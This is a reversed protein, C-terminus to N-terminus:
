VPASTGFLARSAATGQQNCTKYIGAQLAADLHGKFGEMFVEWEEMNMSGFGEFELLPPSKSPAVKPPYPVRDLRRSGCFRGGSILGSAARDKRRSTRNFVHSPPRLSRAMFDDSSDSEFSDEADTTPAKNPHPSPTASISAVSFAALSWSDSEGSLSKDKSMKLPVPSALAEVDLDFMLETPSGPHALAYESGPSDHFAVPEVDEPRGALALEQERFSRPKKQGSSRYSSASDSVGWNEGRSSGEDGEEEEEDEELLLCDGQHRLRSSKNEQVHQWAYQCLKELESPEEDLGLLPRSYVSGIEHLTLGAAACKKLIHTSVMLTRLCDERLMPLNTRLIDLDKDIDLDHIYGLEEEDFPLMAQPWHLWEFYPAELSDPLCFGHDIPILELQNGELLMKGLGMHTCSGHEPRRVLLNGSHRDTNLLRLDLIGVRHINKTNFRGSGVESSDCMHQTYEQLSGLKTPIGMTPPSCESGSEGGVAGGQPLAVHFIPHSARVLVTTPVKARHDHDLLYAAVERIAAEGVRVSPKLGPDGLQRGVFGKPNNPALPEEDCPKLLAARGGAENMLFYTGGLGESVREPDQAARLGRVVNRVLRRACPELRTSGVVNLRPLVTGGGDSVGSGATSLQCTSKLDCLKLLGQIGFAVSKPVEQRSIEKLEPSPLDLNIPRVSQVSLGDIQFGAQIFGDAAAAAM